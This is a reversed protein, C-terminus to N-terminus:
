MAAAYSCTIVAIHRVHCLIFLNIQHCVIAESLHLGFYFALYTRTIQTRTRNFNILDYQGARQAIFKCFCM